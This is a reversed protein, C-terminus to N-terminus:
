GRADRVKRVERKIKDKIIRKKAYLRGLGDELYYKEEDAQIKNKWKRLFVKENRAIAESRGESMGEHHIVLSEPCYVVKYGATRVKLCIDVDELGNVYEEDFGGVEDFIKKQIAMCAATVAQFERKKNVYSLDAGKGYYIHQPIFKKSIVIGAHQVLGNPFVMKSGSVAVDKEQLATMLPEIWSKQVETDNNLFILVDGEARKAGQNCARAFGLNKRHFMAKVWDLSKLYEVTGDSSNNDVVVVDGLYSEPTNEKLAELCKKTLALGNYTPIIISPKM